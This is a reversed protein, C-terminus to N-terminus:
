PSFAINLRKMAPSIDSVGCEKYAMNGIVEINLAANVDANAIHGCSICKFKSQTKRNDQDIHGCKHCRQSTYSAPVKILETKYSLCQELISWCSELIAKNLGSKQKVHKGPNEITGKASKTM